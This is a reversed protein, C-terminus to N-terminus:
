APPTYSAHPHRNNCHALREPRREPPDQQQCRKEGPRRKRPRREREILRNEVQSRRQWTLRAGRAGEAKGVYGLRRNADNRDRAGTGARMRNGRLSADRRSGHRPEKYRQVCCPAVAELALPENDFGVLALLISEGHHEFKGGSRGGSGARIALGESIRHENSKIGKPDSAGFSAEAKSSSPRGGHRGHIAVSRISGAGRASPAHGSTRSGPFRFVAHV